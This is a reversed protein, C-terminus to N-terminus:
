VWQEILYAIAGGILVGSPLGVDIWKLEVIKGVFIGVAAAACVVSIPILINSRLDFVNFYTLLFGVIVGVILAPVFCSNQIKGMNCIMLLAQLSLYFITILSTNQLFSVSIIKEKAVPFM